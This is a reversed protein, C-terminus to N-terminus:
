WNQSWNLDVNVLFSFVFIKKSQWLKEFNLLFLNWSDVHTTNSCVWCTPIWPKWQGLFCLCPMEECNQAFQLVFLYYKKFPHFDFDNINNWFNTFYNSPFLPSLYTSGILWQVSWQIPLFKTPSLSPEFYVKKFVGQIKLNYKLCYSLMEDLFRLKM